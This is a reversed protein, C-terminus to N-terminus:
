FQAALRRMRFLFCVFVFTEGSLDVVAEHTSAAGKEFFLEHFYESCAALVAKHARYEEGEILLTIDCFQNSLRQRNLKELMTQSHKPLFQNVEGKSDVQFFCVCLYVGVFVGNVLSEVTPAAIGCRNNYPSFFVHSVFM